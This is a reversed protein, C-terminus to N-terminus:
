LDGAARRQADDDVGTGVAQAVGASQGGVRLFVAGGGGGGERRRVEPRRGDVVEDGAGGFGGGTSGVDREVVVIDRRHGSDGERHDVEQRFGRVRDGVEGAELARIRIECGILGAQAGA